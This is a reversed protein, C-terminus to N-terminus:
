RDRPREFSRQFQIIEQFEDAPERLTGSEIIAASHDDIGNLLEHVGIGRGGGRTAVFRCSRFREALSTV